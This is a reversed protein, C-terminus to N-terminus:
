IHKIEVHLYTAALMTVRHPSSSYQFVEIILIITHIDINHHAKQLIIYITFFHKCSSSLINFPRVDIRKTYSCNKLHMNKNLKNHWWPQLCTYSKLTLITVTIITNTSCITICENMVKNVNTINQPTLTILM